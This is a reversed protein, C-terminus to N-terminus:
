KVICVLTTVKNFTNITLREWDTWFNIKDYLIWPLNVKIRCWSVAEARWASDGWRTPPGEKKLSPIGYITGGCNLFFINKGQDWEIDCKTLATKLGMYYSRVWRGALIGIEPSNYLIGMCFFEFYRGSRLILVIVVVGILCLNFVNGGVTATM